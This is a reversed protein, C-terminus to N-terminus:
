RLESRLMLVLAQWQLIALHNKNLKEWFSNSSNFIFRFLLWPDSGLAPNNKSAIKLSASASFLLGAYVFWGNIHNYSIEPLFFLMVSHGGIYQSFHPIKQTARHLKFCNLFFIFESVASCFLTLHDCNGMKIKSITESLLNDQQHQTSTDVNVLM